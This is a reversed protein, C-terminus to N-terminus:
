LELSKAVTLVANQYTKVSGIHKSVEPEIAQM